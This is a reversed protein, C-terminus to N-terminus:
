AAVEMPQKAGVDTGQQVPQDYSCARRRAIFAQATDHAKKVTETYAHSNLDAGTKKETDQLRAIRELGAPYLAILLDVLESAYRNAEDVPLASIPQASM